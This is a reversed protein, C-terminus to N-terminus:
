FYEVNDSSLLREIEEPVKLGDVVKEDLNQELDLIEHCRNIVEDAEQLPIVIVGDLDAIIIDGSLVELGSINIPFGVSGPGKSIPSAPTLGTCWSPLGVKNLGVLDRMPGDTVFAAAGCNKMMGALRDGAAACGQYNAFSSVVIDGSAIFKLAALLALIDGPGSNVTLAPGVVNSSMPGTPDVHKIKKAFAGRGWMADNAVSTPVNELAKLQRLSPRTVDKVIRLLKPEEIMNKM